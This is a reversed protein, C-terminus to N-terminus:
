PEASLIVDITEKPDVGAVRCLVVFGTGLRAIEETPNKKFREISETTVNDIVFKGITGISLNEKKNAKKKNM